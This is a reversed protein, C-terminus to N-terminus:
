EGGGGGGDGGGGDGGGGDGGGGATNGTGGGDGSGTNGPPDNAPTGSAVSDDPTSSALAGPENDGASGSGSSTETDDPGYDVEVDGPDNPTVDYGNDHLIDTVTPADGSTQQGGTGTTPNNIGINVQPNTINGSGQAGQNTQGNGTTGVVVTGPLGGGGGMQNDSNNGNNESTNTGATNTSINGGGFSWQPNWVNSVFFGFQLTNGNGGGMLFTGFWGGFGLRTASYNGNGISVNTFTTNTSSNASGIQPNFINGSFFSFQATNGNGTPGGGFWPLLGGASAAANTTSNNGNNMSVNNVSTNHSVNPGLSIQPNFINYSLINVQTTNGNGAAGGLRIEQGLVTNIVDNAVNMVINGLTNNNSVNGGLGFQPNFVNGEFINIRTTNAVGDATSGPILISLADATGTSLEYAVGIAMAAGGVAITRTFLSRGKRARRHAGSKNTGRRVADNRDPTM